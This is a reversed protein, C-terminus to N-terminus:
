SKAHRADVRRSFRAVREGKDRESWGKESMHEEILSVIKKLAETRPKKASRKVTPVTAM